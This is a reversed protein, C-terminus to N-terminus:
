LQTEHLGGISMCSFTNSNDGNQLNSFHPVSLDHGWSCVKLLHSLRSSVLETINSKMEYKLTKIASFGYELKFHIAMSGSEKERLM